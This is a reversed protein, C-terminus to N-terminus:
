VSLHSALAGSSSNSIHSLLSVLVRRDGDGPDGARARHLLQVLAAVGGAELVAEREPGPRAVLSAVSAAAYEVTRPDLSTALLRLIEVAAGRAVAEVRAAASDRRMLLARLAGAVARETGGAAWSARSWALVMAFLAEYAPAGFDPSLGAFSLVTREVLEAAPDTGNGRSPLEGFGALSEFDGEDAWHRQVRSLAAM